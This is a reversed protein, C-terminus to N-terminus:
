METERDRDRATEGQRKKDRQRERGIETKGIERKRDREVDRERWRQRQRERDRRTEPERRGDRDGQSKKPPCAMSLSTERVASPGPCSAGGEDTCASAGRTQTQSSLM